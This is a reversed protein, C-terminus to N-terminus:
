QDPTPNCTAAGPMWTTVDWCRGDSWFWSAGDLTPMVRPVFPLERARHLLEHIFSLREGSVDSPWARVCFERGAATVRWLQAESFSDVPRLATAPGHLVSPYADLVAHLGTVSRSLRPFRQGPRRRHHV